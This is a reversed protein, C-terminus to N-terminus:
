SAAGAVIPEGWGYGLGLLRSAKNAILLRQEEALGPVRRVLLCNAALRPELTSYAVGQFPTSECILHDLGLYLAAHTFQAHEEASGLMRQAKQIGRQSSTPNQPAFLLVDGPLLLESSLYSASVPSWWANDGSPAWSSSVAKMDAQPCLFPRPRIIFM